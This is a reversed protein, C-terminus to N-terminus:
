QTEQCETRCRQGHCTAFRTHLLAHAARLVDEEGNVLFGQCVLCLISVRQASCLRWWTCSAENSRKMSRGSAGSSVAAGGLSEGWGADATRVVGLVDALRLRSLSPLLLTGPGSSTFSVVPETGRGVGRDATDSIPRRATPGDRSSSILSLGASAGPLPWRRDTIAVAAAALRLAARCCIM